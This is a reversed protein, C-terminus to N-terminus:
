VFFRVVALFRASCMYFLRVQLIYLKSSGGFKIVYGVRLQYYTRPHVKNKNIWTGHTSDLDYLYWGVKKNEDVSSPTRCHQLVAHYRSLSPHDMSHDCSPLRGFVHYSKDSLDYREVVTGNKVIEFNYKVESLGGWAPEKYPIVVQAEKLREAPSFKQSKSSRKALEDAQKETQEANETTQANVSYTKSVVQASSSGSNEATADADTIKNENFAKPLGVYKKKFLLSPMKFVNETSSEPPEMGGLSGDGNDNNKSDM